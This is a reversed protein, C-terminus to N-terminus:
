CIMICNFLRINKIVSNENEKKEFLILIYCFIENLLEFCQFKDKFLSIINWLLYEGDFLIITYCELKWIMIDNKNLLSLTEERQNCYTKGNLSLHELMPHNVGELSKIKNKNFSAIQLFPMEELKASVLLNNDAKLTLLHTLVSLSSIDKLKNGSLDIYRLHIFAKM